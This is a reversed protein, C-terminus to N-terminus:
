KGFVTDVGPGGFIQCPHIVVKDLVLQVDVCGDLRSPLFESLHTIVLHYCDLRFDLSQKVSTDDALDHVWLPQGVGHWDFLFVSLPSHAYIECVQILDCGLIVKRKQSHCTMSEAALVAMM